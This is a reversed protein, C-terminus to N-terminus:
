GRVVTLVAQRIAELFDVENWRNPRHSSGIIRNLRIVRLGAKAFASGDFRGPRSSETLRSVGRTQFFDHKGLVGVVFPFIQAFAEWVTSVDGFGGRRDLTERCFLDGTLVVGTVRCEPLEGLACLASLEDALLEGLLRGASRHERFQLDGTFVLAEL